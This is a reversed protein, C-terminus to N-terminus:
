RLELFLAIITSPFDEGGLIKNHVDFTKTHAVLVDLTLYSIENGYRKQM